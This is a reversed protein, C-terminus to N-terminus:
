FPSPPNAQDALATQACRFGISSSSQDEDLFRREGPSLWYPRDNWGGGKYVRSKDGILTTNGTDYFSHSASDGDQVNTDNNHKYNRRNKTEQDSVDVKKLHGTSDREFQGSANKYLKQNKNGRYPNDPVDAPTLPRYIDGCWESVNGCMNYLGFDNPFFSKVTSTIASRDNLGGVVGMNDGSRQKFNALFAGQMHEVKTDRLGTPNKSWSYVQQDVDMEDDLSGSPEKKKQDFNQTTQGYAAYEWEAETPLRYGPNIIGDEMKVSRPKGAVDQIASNKPNAKNKIAGPDNLYTDTAFSGSAGGGQTEKQTFDKKLFGKKELKLENVRDTRWICFDRAQLWSVGVVPYFNYAPHRFYFEVYPENYALEERWCLTDPLAKNMVATDSPFTQDLWNIYERYHVNAVETEDIFFSPVTIRKPANNNFGMVDEQKSGMIFTGGPIYVLGPGAKPAKYKAVHFNGQDKNDYSWGTMSSKHKSSSKCATLSFALIILLLFNNRSFVTLM